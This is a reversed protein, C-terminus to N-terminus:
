TYIAAPRCSLVVASIEDVEEPLLSGFLPLALCERAAQRANPCDFRAFRWRYAPYDCAAPYFYRRAAVGKRRLRFFVADRSFPPRVRLIYYQGNPAFFPSLGDCGSFARDYRAALARRKAREEEVLPLVCLGMAAHLESLKGNWGPLVPADGSLGFNRLLAARKKAPSNSPFIVAGGEVTHFLKTAHFSLATGNGFRLASRGGQECDFAHAGDYLLPLGHRRSLAEFASVDCLRGFVHVPLLAATRENLAANASEPSLCLTEPDVDALVPTFGAREVAQITAAFTFASTVVEGGAKGPLLALLGLLLAATGSSTLVAECGFRESLAAELRDHLPGGNTLIGRSFAESELSFLDNKDPLLPRTLPIRVPFTSIEDM